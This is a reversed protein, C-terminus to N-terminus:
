KAPLTRVFALGSQVWFALDEDREIGPSEVYVYGRMPRGTFDMESVHARKLAEPYADPGIRVMLRRKAIGVFMHGHFMFAIGGFMKRETVRASGLVDRIRQALGEDIAM